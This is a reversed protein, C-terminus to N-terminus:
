WPAVLTSDFTPPDHRSGAVGQWPAAVDSRCRAPSTTM